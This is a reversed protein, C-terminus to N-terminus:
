YSNQKNRLYEEVRTYDNGLQQMLDVIDQKNVAFKNCLETIRSDEGADRDDQGCYTKDESAM